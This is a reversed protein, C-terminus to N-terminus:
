QAVEASSSLSTILAFDEFLSEPHKSPCGILM